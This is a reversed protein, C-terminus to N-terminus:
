ENVILRSIKKSAFIRIIYENLENIFLREDKEMQALEEGEFLGVNKKVLSGLYEESMGYFREGCGLCRFTPVVPISEVLAPTALDLERVVKEDECRKCSSSVKVKEYVPVAKVSVEGGFHAGLIEEPAKGAYYIQDMIRGGRSFESILSGKRTKEVVCFRELGGKEFYSTRYRNDPSKYVVIGSSMM